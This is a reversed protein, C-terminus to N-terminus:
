HGKMELSGKATELCCCCGGCDGDGDFSKLGMPSIMMM